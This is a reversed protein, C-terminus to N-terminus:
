NYLCKYKRNLARESHESGDCAIVIKRRQCHEGDKCHFPSESESAM